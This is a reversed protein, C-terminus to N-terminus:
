LRREVFEAISQISLDNFGGAGLLLEAFPMQTEFHEQISTCLVVADLSEFGLDSFLRSECAIADPYDWGGTLERAQSLVYALIESPNPM